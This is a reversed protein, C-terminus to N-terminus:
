GVSSDYMCDFDTDSQYLCKLFEYSSSYGFDPILLSGYAYILLM